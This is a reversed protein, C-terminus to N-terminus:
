INKIANYDNIFKYYEITNINKTTIYVNYSTDGFYKFSCDSTYKINLSNLIDTIVIYYSHNKAYISHNSYKKIFEKKTM